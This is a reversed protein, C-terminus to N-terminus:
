RFDLAVMGDFLRPVIGDWKVSSRLVLRRKLWTGMGEKYSIEVGIKKWRHLKENGRLSMAGNRETAYLSHLHCLGQSKGYVFSAFIIKIWCNANFLLCQNLSSYTSVSRVNWVTESFKMCFTSCFLYFESFFWLPCKLYFFCYSYLITISVLIINYKTPFCYSSFNFVCSLFLNYITKFVLGFPRPKIPWKYSYEIWGNM